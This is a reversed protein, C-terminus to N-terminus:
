KSGIKCNSGIPIGSSNRLEVRLIGVSSQVGSLFRFGLRRWLINKDYDEMDYNEAVHDNSSASCARSGRVASHANSLWNVRDVTGSPATFVAPIAVGAIKGM